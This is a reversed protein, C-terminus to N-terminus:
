SVAAGHRKNAPAFGYRREAEQRAVIAQKITPYAGLYIMRKNVAIRAQFTGNTLSKVGAHKFKLPKGKFSRIRWVNRRNESRTVERLNSWRNNTGDRDIHDIESPWRGTMWMFAVRQASHTEGLMCGYCYYGTNTSSKQKRTFAQKGAFRSNFSCQSRLPGKWGDPDFWEISRWRWLFVGTKPNYDLFERVIDQTLRSPIKRPKSNTLTVPVEPLQQIAWNTYAPKAKPM